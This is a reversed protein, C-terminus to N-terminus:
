RSPVCGDAPRARAIMVRPNRRIRRVKYSSADTQILLRGAEQVFWVPTAVGTGDRRFSTISLYKGPIALTDGGAQVRHTSPASATHSM